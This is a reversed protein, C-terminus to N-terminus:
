KNDIPASNTTNNNVSTKKVYVFTIVGAILLLIMIFLVISFRNESIEEADHVNTQADDVYDDEISEDTYHEEEIEESTADEDSTVSDTGEELEIDTSNNDGVNTTGNSNGSVTGSSEESTTGDSKDDTVDHSEEQTGNSSDSESGFLEEDTMGDLTEDTTDNSEEQTGGIAGDTPGNTSEGPTGDTSGDTSGDTTGDTSGGPTGDPTGDPTGGPEDNPEDDTTGNTSGASLEDIVMVNVYIIQALTQDVLNITANSSIKADSTTSIVGLVVTGDIALDVQGTSYITIENGTIKEFTYSSNEIPTFATNSFSGASLELSVQIGAINNGINTVQVEGIESVIVRPSSAEINIGFLIFMVLIISASRLIKM